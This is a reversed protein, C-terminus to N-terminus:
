SQSFQERAQAKLARVLHEVHLLRELEAAEFESLDGDNRRSQLQYISEQLPPSLRFETIQQPTPRAAVFELVERYAQASLPLGQGTVLALLEPLQKKLPLLRDALIDPLSLTIETM